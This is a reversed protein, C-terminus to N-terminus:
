ESVACSDADIATVQQNLVPDPGIAALRAEWSNSM